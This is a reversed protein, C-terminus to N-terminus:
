GNSSVKECDSSVLCVRKKITNKGGCILTVPGNFVIQPGTSQAINDNVGTAESIIKRMQNLLESMHGGATAVSPHLRDVVAVEKWGLKIFLLM